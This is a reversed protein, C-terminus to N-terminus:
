YGDRSSSLRAKAETYIPQACIQRRAGHRHLWEVVDLLCGSGTLTRTTNIRAAEVVAGAVPDGASIPAGFM